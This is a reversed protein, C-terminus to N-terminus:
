KDTSTEEWKIAAVPCASIMDDVGMNKYDELEIAQSLWDKNFEFAEPCISVCMWCWICSKNVKLKKTIM